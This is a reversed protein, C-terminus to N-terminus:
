LIDRILIIMKQIYHMEFNNIWNPFNKNRTFFLVIIKFGLIKRAKNVFEKKGKM